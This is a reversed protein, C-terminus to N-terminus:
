HDASPQPKKGMLDQTWVPLLSPARHEERSPVAVRDSLTAGGLGESAGTGPNSSCQNNSDPGPLPWPSLTPVRSDRAVQFRQDKEDQSRM